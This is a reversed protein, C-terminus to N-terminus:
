KYKYKTSKYSSMFIYFCELIDTIASFKVICCPSVKEFSKIRVFGSLDRTPIEEKVEVANIDLYAPSVTEYAKTTPIVVLVEVIRMESALVM